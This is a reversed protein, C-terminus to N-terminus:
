DVVELKGERVAGELQALDLDPFVSTRLIGALVNQGKEKLKYYRIVENLIYRSIKMKTKVESESENTTFTAYTTNLSKAYVNFVKPSLFACTRGGKERQLVRNSGQEWPFGDV